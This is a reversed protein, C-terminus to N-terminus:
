FVAFFRERKIVAKADFTADAQWIALLRDSYPSLDPDPGTQVQWEIARCHSM